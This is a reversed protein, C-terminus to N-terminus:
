SLCFLIQTHLDTYHAQMATWSRTNFRQYHLLLSFPSVFNLLCVTFFQFSFQYILFFTISDQARYYTDWFSLSTPRILPTRSCQQPRASQQRYCKLLKSMNKLFIFARANDSHGWHLIYRCSDSHAKVFVPLFLITRIWINKGKLFTKYIQTHM